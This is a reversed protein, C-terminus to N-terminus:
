ASESRHVFSHSLDVPTSNTGTNTARNIEQRFARTKLDVPSKDSLYIIELIVLPLHSLSM